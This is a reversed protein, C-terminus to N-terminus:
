DTLASGLNAGGPIQLAITAGPPGYGSVNLSTGIQVLLNDSRLTPPLLINDYVYPVSSFAAVNVTFTSSTLGTEDEAFVSLQYNGYTLNNIIIKFTGDPNAILTTAIQGDKLLTLKANPFTFGSMSVTARQANSGNSGGTGGPTTATLVVATM